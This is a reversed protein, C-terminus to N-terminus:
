PAIIHCLMIQITIYCFQIKSPLKFLESNSKKKYFSFMDHPHLIFGIASLLYSLFPKNIVFISFFYFLIFFDLSVQVYYLLARELVLANWILGIHQAITIKNTVSIRLDREKVGNCNIINIVANESSM